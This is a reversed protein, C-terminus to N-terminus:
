IKEAIFDLSRKIAGLFGDKQKKKADRNRVLLNCVTDFKAKNEEMITEAFDRLRKLNEPSGDDLQLSPWDPKRGNILSKNFVHLNEGMETSFTDMLASESAHFFINILPLDNAPDVVGLSGYRNWEDKKISRNIHGTGLVIMIVKQGPKLHPHLAGLYTMCPNDFISGDIGTYHYEDTRGPWRMNFHHCPFYTPAATSAMVADYMSVDPEPQSCYFGKQFSIKKLWMAHGGENMINNITHVPADSGEDRERAAMLQDGDINYAPVILSQLSDQLKANGFLAKMSDSLHKPNYHGHRFLNNLTGIKMTRNNFDHILGRLERFRDPPFINLGEREYFRVLHRAKYKPFGPESPHPLNLAANLISGTSPGCFIDVMEAMRLGTALEIKTMIHAPILGRMGGGYNFLAILPRDEEGSNETIGFM